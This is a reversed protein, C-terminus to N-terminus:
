VYDGNNLRNEIEMVVEAIKADLELCAKDVEMEWMDLGQVAGDHEISPDGEAIRLWSSKVDELFTKLSLSVDGMDNSTVERLQKIETM